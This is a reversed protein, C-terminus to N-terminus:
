QLGKKITGISEGVGWEATIVRVKFGAYCLLQLEGNGRFCWNLERPECTRPLIKSILLFRPFRGCGKTKVQATYSRRNTSLSDLKRLDTCTTRYSTM